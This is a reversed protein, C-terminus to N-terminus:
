YDLHTLPTCNRIQTDIDTIIPHIPIDKTITEIEAIEHDLRTRVTKYSFQQEFM